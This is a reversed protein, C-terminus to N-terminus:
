FYPSPPTHLVYGFLRQFPSVPPSFELDLVRPMYFNQGASLFPGSIKARGTAVEAGRGREGKGSGSVYVLQLFAFFVM